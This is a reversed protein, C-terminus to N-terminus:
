RVWVATYDAQHASTLTRPFRGDRAITTIRRSQADRVLARDGNPSWGLFETGNGTALTARQEGEVTVAYVGATPSGSSYYAVQSGDPSWPSHQAEPDYQNPGFRQVDCTSGLRTDVGSDVRRVYICTAGDRTRVFALRTGDPSFFASHDGPELLTRFAGTTPNLAYVQRVVGLGETQVVIEGQPTWERVGVVFGLSDALLQSVHSPSTGDANAIFVDKLGSIQGIRRSLRNSTFAIRSGDPSWVANYNCNTAPGTLPVRDGSTLDVRFITCTATVAVYRGDPSVSPWVYRDAAAALTREAAPVSDTLLLPGTVPYAGPEGATERLVLVSPEPEPTGSATPSDCGALASLMLLPIVGVALRVRSNRLLYTM